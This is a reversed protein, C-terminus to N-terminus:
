ATSGICISNESSASSVKELVIFCKITPELSRISASHNQLM